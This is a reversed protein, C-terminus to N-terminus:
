DEKGEDGSLNNVEMVVPVLKMMMSAPLDDYGEGIPEGDVHLSLRMMEAQGTVPDDELVKLLPLMEKISLERVEFEVDRVTVVESKFEM